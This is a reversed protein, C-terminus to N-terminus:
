KQKRELKTKNRAQKKQREEMEERTARDKVVPEAYYSQGQLYVLNELAKKRHEMADVVATIIDLQHKAQIVKGVIEQYSDQLTITKEVVGETVKVVGFRGPDLRIAKDM